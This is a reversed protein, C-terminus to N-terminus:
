DLVTIQIIKVIPSGATEAFLKNLGPRQTIRLQKELVGPARVNKMYQSTLTQQDAVQLSDSYGKVPPIFKRVAM